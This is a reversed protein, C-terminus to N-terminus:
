AQLAREILPTATAPGNEQAMCRATARAAKAYTDRELDLLAAAMSAVTLSRIPLPAPGAGIAAVRRGWFPQDGFYPCVLTPRGHRLGAHTTGAGGHHVVARCRPFLWDHPAEDLFHVTQTNQRAKLGGWGVSLIARQGTQNLAKLVIDTVATGDLAPMSGFGVYIPTPGANLFNVLDPPPLWPAPTPDHWDGTIHTEADWDAPKPVLCASHAYLRPLDLGKPNYGALVDLAPSKPVDPHRPFWGKLLARHGVRMLRIMARGSLHNGRRGLDRVGLLPNPFARTAQFAPQLFSPIAVIGLARALYPALFAKPHYIIAGARMQQTLAWMEDLQQQMMARTSRFARIRARIGTVAAQMEPDRLLDEMDISLPHYAVGEPILDCFGRGASLTVDHGRQVLANALAIYPQVDGRSGLTIILIGAM